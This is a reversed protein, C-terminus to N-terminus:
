KGNTANATFPFGFTFTDILVEGKILMPESKEPIRFLELTIVTHNCRLQTPHAEVRQTVSRAAVGLSNLRPFAEKLESLPLEFMFTRGPIPTGGLSTVINALTAPDTVAKTM